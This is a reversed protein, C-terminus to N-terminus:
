IYDKGSLEHAELLNDLLSRKIKLEALEQGYKRSSIILQEQLSRAANEQREIEFMIQNRDFNDMQVDFNKNAVQSRKTDAEQNIYELEKTLEEIERLLKENKRQFFKIEEPNESIKEEKKFEMFQKYNLDGKNIKYIENIQREKETLIQKEHQLQEIRVRLDKETVRDQSKLHTQIHEQLNQIISEQSDITNKLNEIHPILDEGRHMHFEQLQKAKKVEEIDKQIEKSRQIQQEIHFYHESLENYVSREFTLKNSIQVFKQRLVDIGQDTQKLLDIHIHIEKVDNSQKIKDRLKDNEDDFDNKQKRLLGLDYSVQKHACRLYHLKKMTKLFDKQSKLLEREVAESKQQVTDMDTEFVDYYIKQLAYIDDDAQAQFENSKYRLCISLKGLEKTEDNALIQLEQEYKKEHRLKGIIKSTITLSTNGVM